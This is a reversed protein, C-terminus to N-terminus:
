SMPRDVMVTCDAALVVLHRGEPGDTSWVDVPEGAVLATAHLRLTVTPDTLSGPLEGGCVPGLRDLAEASSRAALDPAAVIGGGADDLAGVQDVLDDVSPFPGLDGAEVPMPPSPLSPVSESSGFDGAEPREGGANGSDDGVQDDADRGEDGGSRPAEAGDQATATAEDM